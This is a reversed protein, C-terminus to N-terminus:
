LKASVRGAEWDALGRKISASLARPTKYKSLTEEPIEMSIESLLHSVFGDLSLGYCLALRNLREAHKLDVNAKIITDM